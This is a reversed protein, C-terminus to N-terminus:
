TRKPERLMAVLTVQTDPVTFEDVVKFGFHQYMSVNKSGQTELFSPLGEGDIVTLM